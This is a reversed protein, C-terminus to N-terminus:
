VNSGDTGLYLGSNVNRLFYSAETVAPYVPTISWLQCDGGLFEWQDINGGDTESWDYLDLGATDGSCKSVIGYYGDSEILKWEQSDSGTYSQVCVNSGNTADTGDVIIAFTEDVM